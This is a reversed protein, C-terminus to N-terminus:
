AHALAGYERMQLQQILVTNQINLGQLLQHRELDFPRELLYEYIPGPNEFLDRWDYHRGQVRDLAEFDYSGRIGLRVMSESVETPDRHLVVKRAPHRNVDLLASATCAIGLRRDTPWAELHAYTWEYLPDHLCLTEDTTLWNAAWATGSRPAALVMFEISM